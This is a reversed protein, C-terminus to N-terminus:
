TAAIKVGLIALIGGFCRDILTKLSIYGRRTTSLSFIRAVLINWLTEVAFVVLWLALIVPWGTNPPITGVYIAGFLIAPKPNTLQTLLGLRFASGVSRPLRTAENTDFPESANWWMNLALWILFLGGAIKLTTLMVPAIEFIIALGFLAAMAWIVAGLGIGCALAAGARFGETVGTRAALLVAPGPSVAAMVHLLVVAAFAALTM